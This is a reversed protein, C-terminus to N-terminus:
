WFFSQIEFGWLGHSSDMVPMIGSLLFVPIAPNLFIDVFLHTTYDLQVAVTLLPFSILIKAMSWKPQVIHINRKVEEVTITKLQFLECEHLDWNVEYGLDRPMM